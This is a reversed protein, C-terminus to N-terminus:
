LNVVLVHLSACSNLSCVFIAFIVRIDLTVSLIYALCYNHVIPLLIVVLEWILKPLTCRRDEHHGGKVRFKVRFRVKIRSERGVGFGREGQCARPHRDLVGM